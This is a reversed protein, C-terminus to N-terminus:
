LASTRTYFTWLPSFFVELAGKWPSDHDEQTNSKPM